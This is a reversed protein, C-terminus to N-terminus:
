GGSLSRADDAAVGELHRTCDLLGVDHPPLASLVTLSANGLREPLADREALRAHAELMAGIV